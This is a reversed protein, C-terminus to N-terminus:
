SILTKCFFSLVSLSMDLVTIDLFLLFLVTVSGSLLPSVLFCFFDLLSSFLEDELSPSGWYFLMELKIIDGFIPIIQRKGSIFLGCCVLLLFTISIDIPRRIIIMCIFSSGREFRCRHPM